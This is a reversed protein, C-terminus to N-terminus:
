RVFGQLKIRNFLARFSLLHQNENALHMWGITKIIAASIQISQIGIRGVCKDLGSVLFIEFVTAFMEALRDLADKRVFGM